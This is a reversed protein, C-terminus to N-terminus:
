EPKYNLFKEVMEADKKEQRINDAIFYLIMCITIIPWVFPIVILGVLIAIIDLPPAFEYDWIKQFINRNKMKEAYEKEFEEKAEENIKRHAYVIAEERTYKKPDLTAVIEETRKQYDDQSKKLEYQHKNYRARKWEEVTYKRKM